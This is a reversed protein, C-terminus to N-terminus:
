YSVNEMEATKCHSSSGLVSLIPNIYDRYIKQAWVGLAIFTCLNYKFHDMNMEICRYRNM